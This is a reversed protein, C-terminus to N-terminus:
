VPNPIQYLGLTPLLVHCGLNSDFKFFIEIQWRAKYIRAITLASLRMNNTLFVLEKETEQDFYRVLRLPYPYDRSSDFGGLVVLADSVVGKNNPQSYPM